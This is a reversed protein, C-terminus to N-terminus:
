KGRQGSITTTRNVRYVFVNRPIHLGIAEWPQIKTSVVLFGM